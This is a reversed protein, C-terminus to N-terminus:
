AAPQRRALRAARRASIAANAAHCLRRAGRWARTARASDGREQHVDGRELLERAAILITNPGPRRTIITTTAM